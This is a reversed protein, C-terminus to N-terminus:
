IVGEEFEFGESHLTEASVLRLSEVVKAMEQITPHQFVTIASLHVAIREAVKAILKMGLLSHGGLEFFNDQVGVQDVRLVQAWIDALTRELETRPAVYEGMEEPRSQPAPLAHRDVKGNPTLPLQKLLMWASPIMYEPLRGKLYERLQPILQQRFGNEMPDNAYASWPTAMDPPHPVARTVQDARARDLLQVDLCGTSDQAGWSVQVDYGRTEAAECIKEPDVGEVPLETLQLRLAGAELAEDATEILRQAAAEKALRQNPIEYLRAAACWRRQRLAVDFEAISPVATQWDLPECIARTGIEEGTHLVVDYRYRTLENPAHGRKLQVEVASIGPLRGPLVQFFQPDIVLEKEQAVARAIRKRLQGVSVMAAAKSLQVASHFMPLLGLHRVDGVFIKGGPSLLRVAEQLVALLYEIDPFYQVVSNLVVTDFSGSQMDQLETASRQLLEVHKLDERRSVWQRLQELASASFDTGVYVACQPALHQLLLGVGCGIELVKNPWLARIRELGCSLWEQMQPEPIPQGTYSSNWGTFSPGAVGEAYTEDYLRKWQDVIDAGANESGAHQADRQPFHAVVYGVLRKEGPEDERALVVSEKVQSHRLLQAEIEGLEIRYGRIKVQEDNRGLVEITGDTQWRGLDGSRYIRARPAGSFPDVVFREATLEPRSWYGRAVGAGGIYIEGAVGIPVPQRDQDLIYIQTNAIPRGIHLVADENHIR